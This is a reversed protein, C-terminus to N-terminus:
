LPSRLRKGDPKSKIMSGYGFGLRDMVGPRFSEILIDCGKVLRNILHKDEKKKLDICLSRKNRNHSIFYASEGNQFPPGSLRTSDGRGPIEIKLIDAGLDGLLMTAFPGALVHTFDLVTVNDLPGM